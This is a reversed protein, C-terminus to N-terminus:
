TCELPSLHLARLRLWLSRSKKRKPVTNLQFKQRCRGSCENLLLRRKTNATLTALNKRHLTAHAM